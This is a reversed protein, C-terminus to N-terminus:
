NDDRAIATGLGEFGGQSTESRATRRRILDEHYVTILIPGRLADDSTQVVLVAFRDDPVHATAAPQGRLPIDSDRVSAAIHPEEV